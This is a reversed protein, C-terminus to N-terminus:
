HSFTSNLTHLLLAEAVRRFINKLLDQPICHNRSKIEDHPHFSSANNQQLSFYQWVFVRPRKGAQSHYLRLPNFIGQRSNRLLLNPNIDVLRYCPNKLRFTKKWSKPMLVVRIRAQKWLKRWSLAPFPWMLKRLGWIRWAPKLSNSLATPMWWCNWTM